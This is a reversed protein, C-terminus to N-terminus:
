LRRVYLIIKWIDSDKLTGKFPPMASGVPVGGESITWDLYSDTAMPMKAFAAINAPHPNLNRSAPGDGLGDAGHCAACNQDYLAKGAALNEPTDPLPNTKTAYHPDIGNMMAYHHRRMSMSMEGGMMGMEADAAFSLIAV